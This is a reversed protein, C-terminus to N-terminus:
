EQNGSRWLDILTNDIHFTHVTLNHRVRRNDILVIESEPRSQYNTFFRESWTNDWTKGDSQKTCEIQSGDRLIITASTCEMISVGPYFAGIDFKATDGAKLVTTIAHPDETNVLEYPFTTILKVKADTENVVEDWGSTVWEVAVGLQDETYIKDDVKDCSTLVPVACIALIGLIKAFTSTKM